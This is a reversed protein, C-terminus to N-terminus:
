GRTVSTKEVIVYTDTWKDHWPRPWDGGFASFPEFPVVRSLGRLFATKMSIPSGDPNVARTGTFVKGLTKGRFLGETLGMFFAYLFLAYLLNITLATYRDTETEYLAIRLFKGWLINFARSFFYFLLRDVIFNVFRLNRNAPDLEVEFDSLIHEEPEM